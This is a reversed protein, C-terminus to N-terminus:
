RPSFSASASWMDHPEGFYSINDIIYRTTGDGNKIIIFDGDSIGTKWGSLTINLGGNSIEHITYNCGWARKSLDHEM